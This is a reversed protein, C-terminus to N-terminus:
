LPPHAAPPSARPPRILARVDELVRQPENDLRKRTVRLVRYGVRQLDADRIRDEEFARPSTHYGRSDLEVVLGAHSWAADVLHGAVLINLRPEPLKSARILSLFDRELGSRTDQPPRYDSLVARLRGVGACGPRRAIARELAGLDFREFRDAAEILRTLRDETGLPAALDLITRAVSTVSINERITVDEPHLDGCHVRITKRSRRAARVTVDVHASGSWLGWLAAASRHSLVAGPGYALVAAMWLGERTLKRHGVAYVGRHIRHLRGTNVRSQLASRSLNLQWRAVVGHQRTALAGM